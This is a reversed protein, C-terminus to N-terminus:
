IHKADAWFSELDYYERAEASMLHVIIHGYDLLLWRPSPGEVKNARLSSEELLRERVSRELSNLHPQSTGTAIVFYSLSDSVSTLDLAVVNEAKKDDLAAKIQAIAATTDIPLQTM